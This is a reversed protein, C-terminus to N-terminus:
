PFPAILTAWFPERFFGEIASNDGEVRGAMVKKRVFHVM